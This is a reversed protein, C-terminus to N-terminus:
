LTEDLWDYIVGTALRLNGVQCHEGAGEETRFVRMTTPGSVLGEFERALGLPVFHDDEGALILTPCGIREAVDTLSYRQLTRALEAASNVGFVWTSNDMLWRSELSFRAGVAAFGNVVGDPARDFVEALRPHDYASAGWLDHMHDFAVCAAVRDDFAAARPAYYGGFSAGVLGIRDTDIAAVDEDSEELFDLVPGVVHEWDPRATLGSFRLPAGQGPSDFLLVAYGRALAEPVGCLFYLEEALSDFGGICVVTPRPGDSGRPELLYGPLETDEYPISVRSTPVDLADLGRRFSERSREYTPRRRPDDPDLFFEATRFYTHARFSAFRTTRDHGDEFAEDALREVREATRRWEAHWSETDGDDIREATTLVEGPEAGGFTTYAMARLTQYDFARGSFHVRMAAM